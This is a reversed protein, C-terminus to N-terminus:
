RFKSKCKYCERITIWPKKQFSERCRPCAYTQLFADEYTLDNRIKSSQQQGLYRGLIGGGSSAVVGLISTGGTIPALFISAAIGLVAGGIGYGTAANNAQNQRDIYEKWIAELENFSEIEKKTPAPNTVNGQTSQQTATKPLAVRQVIHINPFASKLNFLYNSGFRLTVSSAFQYKKNPILKEEDAFSGNTSGLDEFEIMVPTILRIKCQYRSINSNNIVIKNDINRGITLFPSNDMSLIDGLQTKDRDFEVIKKGDRFTAKNNEFVITADTNKGVVSLIKTTDDDIFINIIDIPYDNSLTVKDDKEIKIPKASIIKIGNVFTGNLSTLDKIYYNGDLKQVEAHRRSVRNKPDIIVYDCLSDRGIIKIM